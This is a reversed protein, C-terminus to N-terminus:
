NEKTDNTIDIIKNKNLQLYENWTKTQQYFFIKKEYEDFIYIVKQALHKEM